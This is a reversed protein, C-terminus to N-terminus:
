KQHNYTSVPQAKKVLEKWASSKLESGGQMTFLPRSDSIVGLVKKDRNIITNAEGAHRV